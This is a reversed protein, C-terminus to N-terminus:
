VLKIEIGLDKLIYHANAMATDDAFGMEAVIIKNPALEAAAEIFEATINRDLCFLLLDGDVSYVTKGKIEKIEIEYTLQIGLKLMLEYVVDLPPRDDKIGDIVDRMSDLYQQGYGAGVPIGDWEKLNSSDLKFVKFGIDLPPRDDGM